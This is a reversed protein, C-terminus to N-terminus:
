SANVTTLIGGLGNVNENLEFTKIQISKRIGNHPILNYLLDIKSRISKWKVVIGPGHRSIMCRQRPLTACPNGVFVGYRVLLVVALPLDSSVM